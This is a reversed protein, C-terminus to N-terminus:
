YWSCKLQAMLNEININIIIADINIIIADYEM